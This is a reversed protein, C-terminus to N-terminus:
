SQKKHKTLRFIHNNDIVRPIEHEYHTVYVLSIGNAKTIHEIAQAVLQKRAMDLGHLPEDLILLSARRALTRAILALRQEGSSLTRFYRNALGDLCFAKLWETTTARQEDSIRRFCGVNDHLGSAVVALLTEGNNFYLHMEPSIYGIRRKIEWISEGTGRRHDFITIRNRYGQPNDAYVLSLLTSKGSGNEGLLAWKEGAAVQWSIDHLIINSGYAVNCHELSFATHYDVPISPTTDPLDIQPTNSFLKEQEKRAMSITEQSVPQMKGITLDKIPLISDAYDPIDITNCLLLMVATGRKTLKSILGNFLDRSAADLGIYPNDIILLDPQETLINIILFKRLEGSSLYNIRKHRVDDISLSRCLDLWLSECIKGSILEEVTPIGDNATSEFRQQYYTDNCGTLSHIDTFEISQINLSSKDGVIRNLGINWGKEIIKGLTTKGSGNEGIVVYTLGARIDFHHPNSLRVGTYQLTDSEASLLIKNENCGM